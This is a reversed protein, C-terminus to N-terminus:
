KTGRLDSGKYHLKTSENWVRSALRNGLAIIIAQKDLNGTFINAKENLLRQDIFTLLLSHDFDSLKSAAIDDWIVLDVTVLDHKLVDFYQDTYTFGEKVKSILTPVHIFIGRRKFGNGLWVKNFYKLMLKIAWTTKGNGFNESYLYLNTGENVHTIITEGIEKLQTYVKLDQSRVVVATKYQKPTPINSAYMLYDMEMYRICSHNCDLTAEKNCNGKYWCRTKDFKYEYFM